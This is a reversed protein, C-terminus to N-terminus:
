NIKFVFDIFAILNTADDTAEGNNCFANCITQYPLM